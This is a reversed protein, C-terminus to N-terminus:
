YPASEEEQQGTTAPQGWQNGQHQQPHGQPQQQAAEQGQSDKSVQAVQNLLSPAVHEALMTVKAQEGRDSSWIETKLDGVCLVLMGTALSNCVNEAQRGFVTVSIWTTPGDVWQGAKDKFRETWAVSLHTYTNGSQSQQLKPDKGLRGILTTHAM